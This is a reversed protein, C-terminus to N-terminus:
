RRADDPVEEIEEPEDALEVRLRAQAAHLTSKVTGTSMRLADAIEDLSMGVLHRLVVVARQRPPLSRIADRVWADRAIEPEPEVDALPADPSRGERQLARRAHRLAVVYVWTGPRDMGGVHRWRRLAKEFGVQAADEATAREGFVLTLSRVVPDYEERFFAEFDGVREM